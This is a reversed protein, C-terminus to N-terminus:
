RLRRRSDSLSQEAPDLAKGCRIMSRDPELGEFRAVAFFQQTLQACLKRRNLPTRAIADFARVAVKASRAHTRLRLRHKANVHTGLREPAVEFSRAIIFGVAERSKKCHGDPVLREAAMVFGILKWDDYFALIQDSLNRSGIVALVHEPMAAAFLKELGAM